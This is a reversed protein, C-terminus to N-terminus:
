WGWRQRGGECGEGSVVIVDVFVPDKNSSPQGDAALNKTGSGGETENDDGALNDGIDNTTTVWWRHCLSANARGGVVAMPMAVCGDELPPALRM